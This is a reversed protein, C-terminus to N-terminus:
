KLSSVQLVIQVVHVHRREKENEQRSKVRLNIIPVDQLKLSNERRKFNLLLVPKKYYMTLFSHFSVLTKLWRLEM